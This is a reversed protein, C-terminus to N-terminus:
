EDGESHGYKLRDFIRIGGLIISVLAALITAVFAANALSVGAVVAGALVGVDFWPKAAGSLHDIM